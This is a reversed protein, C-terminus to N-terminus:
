RANRDDWDRKLLSYLAHDVFHDNIWEAERLTGELVFGLREAVARSRHNDIAAALTIRNLNLEDFGLGILAMCSATVLGHGQRDERLWYGLSGIRNHEDIRSLGIVGCPETDREIVFDFGVGSDRGALSTEIFALTDQDSVTSDVWPMWKRLYARNADVMTFLMGADTLEVPRLRTRDDVRLLRM